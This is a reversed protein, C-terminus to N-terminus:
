GRASVRRGSLSDEDVPRWLVLLLDGDQSDWECGGGVGRSGEEVAFRCARARAQHASETRVRHLDPSSRLRRRRPHHLLTRRFRILSTLELTRQSLLSLIPAGWQHGNLCAAKRINAFPIAARCAPCTETGEFATSLADPPLIPEDPSPNAAASPLLSASALLIRGSIALEQATSPV